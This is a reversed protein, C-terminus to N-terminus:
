DPANLMSMSDLMIETSHFSANLSLSSLLLASPHNTSSSASFPSFPFFSGVSSLSEIPMMENGLHNENETQSLLIRAFLDIQPNGGGKIELVPMHRFYCQQWISLCSIQYQVPLYLMTHSKQPQPPHYFPSYFLYADRGFTIEDWVSRLILPPNGLAVSASNGRDRECDFLFTDYISSLACDWLVTLYTETFQFHTPFQNILQWVCDLFLLFVPSQQNDSSYVLSLRSCFPHGMSVWERQVLSQFGVITRYHPDLLLQTLSAVVCCLDRGDYEQVVVTKDDYLRQAAILSKQLVNSVYLLWKSNEIHGWFHQDQVWFQKLDETVTSIM